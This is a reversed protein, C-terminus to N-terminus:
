FQAIAMFPMFALIRYLICTFKNHDHLSKYKREAAPHSLDDDM